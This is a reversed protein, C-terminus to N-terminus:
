PTSRVKECSGHAVDTGAGGVCRDKGEEGSLFDSGAGGKLVDRGPGGYLDDDGAEGFLRDPGKGGDVLDNGAGACVFDKGDGAFIEDDGGFAVIVDSGPTGFLADSADSGGITPVRGACLPKGVPALFLHDFNATLVTGSTRDVLAHVSYSFVGEPVVVAATKIDRARLRTWLVRGWAPTAQAPTTALYGVPSGSCNSTPYFYVYSSAKGNATEGAAFRVWFEFYYPGPPVHGSVCRSASALAAPIGAVDSVRLSGSGPRDDFEVEPEWALTRCSGVSAAM